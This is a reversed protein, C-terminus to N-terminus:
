DAEYHKGKSGGAVDRYGRLRQEGTRDMSDRRPLKEYRPARSTNPVRLRRPNIQEDRGTGRVGKLSDSM